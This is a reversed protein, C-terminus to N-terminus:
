QKNEDFGYYKEKFFAIPCRGSILIYGKEKLEINLKKIIRYASSVSINLAESIDNATLYQKM